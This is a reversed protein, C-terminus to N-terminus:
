RAAAPRRAAPWTPVIVRLRVLGQDRGGHHGGPPAPQGLLASGYQRGQAAMTEGEVAGGDLGTPLVSPALLCLCAADAPRDQALRDHQDAILSALSVGPAMALLPLVLGNEKATHEEFLVQLARADAAAGAPTPAARLADVLATLCRHEAILSDILLRAEPMSHATPYIAAEQAAAHPLLSRDCFAVLAAHMQEAARLDTNMATLQMKARGALERALRGHHAEAAAVAAAGEPASALTLVRM